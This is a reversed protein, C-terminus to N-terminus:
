PIPAPGTWSQRARFLSQSVSRPLYQSQKLSADRQGARPAPAFIGQWGSSQHFRVGPGIQFGCDNNHWSARTERQWGAWWDGALGSYFRDILLQARFASATRHFRSSFEPIPFIKGLPRCNNGRRAHGPTPRPAAPWYRIEYGKFQTMGSNAM